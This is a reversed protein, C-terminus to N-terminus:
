FKAESPSMAPSPVNKILTTAKSPKKPHESDLDWTKTTGSVQQPRKPSFNKATSSSMTKNRSPEKNSFSSLTVQIDAM